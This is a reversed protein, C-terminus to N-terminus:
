QNLDTKSCPLDLHGVLGLATDKIEVEVGLVEEIMLDAWKLVKNVYQGIYPHPPPLYYGGLTSLSHRHILTGEERRLEMRSNSVEGYKLISLVESVRIM